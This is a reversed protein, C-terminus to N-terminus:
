GLTASSGDPRTILAKAGPYAALLAYAPAEGAAVIATALADAIAARDALVIVEALAVASRGTRPDFIHHTRGGVPDLVTGYGGSVAVAGEGM